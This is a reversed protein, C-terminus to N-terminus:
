INACCKHDETPYQTSGAIAFLVSFCMLYIWLWRHLHELCMEAEVGNVCKIMAGDGCRIKRIDRETAINGINPLRGSM